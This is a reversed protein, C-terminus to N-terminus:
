HRGIVKADWGEERQGEGIVQGINGHLLVLECNVALAAQLRVWRIRGKLDECLEAYGCPHIGGAM